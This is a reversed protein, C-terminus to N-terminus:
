QYYRKAKRSKKSPHQAEVYRPNPDCSGGVGSRSVLCQQLTAYGCDYPGGDFTVLCWAGRSMRRHQERWIYPEASASECVVAVILAVATMMVIRM